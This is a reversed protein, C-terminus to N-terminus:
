ALGVDLHQQPSEVFAFVVINGDPDIPLEDALGLPLSLTGHQEFFGYVLCKQGVPGELDLRRAGGRVQHEIVPALEGVLPVKDGGIVEQLEAEVWIREEFDPAEALGPEHDEIDGIGQVNDSETSGLDYGRGGVAESELALSSRGIVGVDGEAGGLYPPGQLNSFYARGIKHIGSLPGVVDQDGM